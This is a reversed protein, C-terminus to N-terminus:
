KERLTRVIWIIFRIFLYAPYGSLVLAFGVWFWAYAVNGIYYDKSPNAQRILGYIFLMMAPIVFCIISAWGLVLAERVIIKKISM